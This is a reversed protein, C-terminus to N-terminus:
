AENSAPLYCDDEDDDLDVTGDVAWHGVPNGNHDQIRGSPLSNLNNGQKILRNAVQRLAAAIDYGTSMEDNGLEITLTFREASMTKEKKRCFPCLATEYDDSVLVGDICRWPCKMPRLRM